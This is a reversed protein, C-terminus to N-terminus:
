AVRDFPPKGDSIKEFQESTELQKTFVDNLNNYDCVIRANKNAAREQSDLMDCLSMSKLHEKYNSYAQKVLQIRDTM